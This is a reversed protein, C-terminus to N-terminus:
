ILHEDFIQVVLPYKRHKFEDVIQRSICESIQLIDSFGKIDYYQSLLRPNGELLEQMEAAKSVSVTMETAKSVSRGLIYLVVLQSGNGLWDLIFSSVLGIHWNGVIDSEYSNFSHSGYAIGFKDFETYEMCSVHNKYTGDPKGKEILVNIGKTAGSNRKCSTFGLKVTVTISPPSRHRRNVAFIPSPTQRCLDTVSISSLSLRRKRRCHDLFTVSYIFSQLSAGSAFKNTGTQLHLHVEM